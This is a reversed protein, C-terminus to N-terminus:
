RNVNWCGLVNALAPINPLPTMLPSFWCTLVQSVFVSKTQHFLEDMASKGAGSVSQYTAVIVRKVTAADHLPKLAVALQATSCNPNAIINKKKYGELAEGNVEPVILPVEPDMRYLSSNDIVIAGAKAAKPVYTKSVESGAAFFAIDCGAFDFQDLRQARISSAGVELEEGETKESSLGVITDAPFGRESLINLIERGVSGTAGVVAVKYGM